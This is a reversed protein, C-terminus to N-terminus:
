AVSKAIYNTEKFEFKRTPNIELEKLRKEINM